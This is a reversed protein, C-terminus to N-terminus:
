LKMKRDFFKKIDTLDITIGNIRIFSYGTSFLFWNENKLKLVYLPPRSTFVQKISKVEKWKVNVSSKNGSKIKIEDNTMEVFVMKSNFFLFSLFSAFGFLALITIFKLGSIGESNPILIHIM